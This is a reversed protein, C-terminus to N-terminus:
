LLRNITILSRTTRLKSITKYIEEPFPEQCYFCVRNHVITVCGEKIKLAGRSKYKCTIHVVGWHSRTILQPFESRKLLVIRFEKM